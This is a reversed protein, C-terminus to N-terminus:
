TYAQLLHMLANILGGMKNDNNLKPKKSVTTKSPQTSKGANEGPRYKKVLKKARKMSINPSNASVAEDLNNNAPISSKQYNTKTKAAGTNHGANPKPNKISAGKSTKTLQNYFYCKLYNNATHDTHTTDAAHCNVCGLPLNQNQKRPCQGPAHDVICQVCRYRFRCQGATHNYRQCRRCQIISSKKMKEIIVHFSGVRKIDCIRSDDIEPEVIISFLVPASDPNRKMNGTTYRNIQIGDTIGHTALTNQIDAIIAVDNGHCLGRVIYGRKRNPKSTYTNFEINSDVLYNGISTKIDDNDPYIRAPYNQNLQRWIFGTPFVAILKNHIAECDKRNYLRLQIPTVKIQASTLNHKVTHAWSNANTSDNSNKNSSSANNTDMEYSDLDIIQERSLIPDTIPDATRKIKPNTSVFYGDITRKNSNCAVNLNHDSTNNKTQIELLQNLKSNIEANQQVLIGIQKNANELQQHLFANEQKLSQLDKEKEEDMVIRTYTVLTLRSSPRMRENM